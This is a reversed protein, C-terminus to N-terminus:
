GSPRSCDRGRPDRSRRTTHELASRPPKKALVELAMGAAHNRDVGLSNMLAIILQEKADVPSGGAKAFNFARDAEVLAANAPDQYAKSFASAASLKPDRKQLKAARKQLEGYAASVTPVPAVPALAPREAKVVESAQRYENWLSADEPSVLYSAGAIKNMAAGHSIRDRQAVEVVRDNFKQVVTRAAAKEIATYMTSDETKGVAALASAAASRDAEIEARARAVADLNDGKTIGNLRDREKKAKKKSAFTSVVEGNRVVDWSKKEVESKASYGIPRWDSGLVGSLFRPADRKLLMVKVGEGAGRDVASVETIRLKTLRKPM